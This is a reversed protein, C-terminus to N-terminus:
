PAGVAGGSAMRVLYHQGPQLTGSLVTPAASSGFNGTGTASAYQVSWGTMSVASSGLNFLEVFDNAYPAGTSGGGGYVQSIVVDPSAAQAPAVAALGGAVMVCGIAGAVRRM